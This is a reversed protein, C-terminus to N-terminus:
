WKNRKGYKLIIYTPHFKSTRLSITTDGLIEELSKGDYMDKLKDDIYRQYEAKVILLYGGRKGMAELPDKPYKKFDWTYMIESM